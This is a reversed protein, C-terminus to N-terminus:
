ELSYLLALRPIMINSSGQAHTRGDHGDRRSSTQRLRAIECRVGAFIAAAPGRAPLSRGHPLRLAHMISGIPIRPVTM